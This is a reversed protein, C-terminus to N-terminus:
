VEPLHVHEPEARLEGDNRQHSCQESTAATVTRHARPIRRRGGGRRGRPIGDLCGVRQHERRRRQLHARSLGHREREPRDCVVDEERRLGSSGCVDVSVVRTRVDLPHEVRRASVRERAVDMRLHMPRDLDLLCYLCFYPRLM